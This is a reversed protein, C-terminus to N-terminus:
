PLLFAKRRGLSVTAGRRRQRKLGNTALQALGDCGACQVSFIQSMVNRCFKAKRAGTQQITHPGNTEPGKKYVRCISARIFCKLTEAIATSNAAASEPQEL